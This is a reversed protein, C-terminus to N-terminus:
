RLRQIDTRVFLLALPPESSRLGRLESYIPQKCFVFDFIRKILEYGKKEKYEVERVKYFKKEGVFTFQSRASMEM